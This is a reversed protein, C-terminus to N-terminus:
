TVVSLSVSEWGLGPQCKSPLGTLSWALSEALSSRSEQGVSVMLNYINTRKLQNVKSYNTVHCHVVLLSESKALARLLYTEKEKNEREKKLVNYNFPM